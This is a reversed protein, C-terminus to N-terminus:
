TTDSGALILTGAQNVLGDMTYDQSKLVGALFDNRGRDGQHIRRELKQRTLQRHALYDRKAHAPLILPPFLQLQPFSKCLGLMTGFFASNVMVSVWYNTKMKAVANFSEGFTLDGIIDFTLWNYAESM